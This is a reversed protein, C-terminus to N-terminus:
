SRVHASHYLRRLQSHPKQLRAVILRCPLAVSVRQPGRGYAAALEGKALSQRLAFISRQTPSPNLFLGGFALRTAAASHPGHRCGHPFLLLALFSGRSPRCFHSV